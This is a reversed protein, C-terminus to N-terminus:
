LSNIWDRLYGLDTSTLASEGKPMAGGYGQLQMFSATNDFDRPVVFALNDIDDVSSINWEASHCGLCSTRLVNYAKGKTSNLDVQIGEYKQKDGSSTNFDQM